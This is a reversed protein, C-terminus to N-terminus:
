SGGCSCGTAMLQSTSCKCMRNESACIGIPGNIFVRNFPTSGIVNPSKVIATINNESKFLKSSEYIRSSPIYGDKDTIWTNKFIKGKNWNTTKNPPKDLYLFALLIRNNLIHLVTGYIPVAIDLPCMGSFGDVNWRIIDGVKYDEM